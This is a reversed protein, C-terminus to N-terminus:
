RVSQKCSATQNSLYSLCYNSDDVKATPKIYKAITALHNESIKYSMRNMDVYLILNADLNLYKKAIVLRIVDIQNTELYDEDYSVELINQLIEYDIESLQILISNLIESNEINTMLPMNSMSEIANTLPKSQFVTEGDVLSLDSFYYNYDALNNGTASSQIKALPYTEEIEIYMGFINVTIEVDKILPHRSLLDVQEATNNDWLYDTSNVRAIDIVDSITLNKIGEVKPTGIKSIPLVFYGVILSWLVVLVGFRKIFRMRKEKIYRQLSDESFALNDFENTHEKLENLM